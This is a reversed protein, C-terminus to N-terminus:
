QPTNPSSPDSSPPTKADGGHDTHKKSKKAPKEGTMASGDDSTPATASTPSAASDAPAATEPSTQTPSGTSTTADNTPAPTTTMPSPNAPSTQPLTAQAMASGAFAAAALAIVATTTRLTKMVDPGTEDADSQSAIKVSARCHPRIPKAILGNRGMRPLTAARM